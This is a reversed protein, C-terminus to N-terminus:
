VPDVADASDNPEGFYSRAKAWAQQAVLRGAARGDLDAKEFHIGGYRRSMGAQDAADKFTTWTLTLDSAPVAGPEFRSSGAPFTVGAGFEDSRTFLRLIEAGAASFTSHGSSYEPFPPTPFTSAQYPFWDEGRMLQTGRYPGAWARVHQGRFLYRIATIPRVSDFARKNDWCCIGADFIANTLAFFLKVDADLDHRREGNRDRRSVYQALLDWHGPPLESRPGDAWYEAIMKQEDTLGASLELLASAQSRYLDSGYTAPGVAPRLQAASSLAFPKVRQWQAGVFPQTVVAGTADIYRLPQWRNPDNVSAPDFAVRTDMSANQSKYATDDSYPVGPLGGPEDGLQNAGDRHRFRLVAEAAINGVGIPTSGDTTKNNPDLGLSRMLPDFVTLKDGPFIDVAARYAAFSIATEKNVRTREHHPRRLGGGLQTGIATRDYAAWADYIGTHVIALARAVMPPGLKSDRVGQLAAANWRLVVSDGTESGAERVSALAPRHAWAIEPVLLLATGAGVRKLFQRRTIAVARANRSM